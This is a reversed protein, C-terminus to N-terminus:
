NKEYITFTLVKTNGAQDSVTLIFTNTNNGGNLAKLLGPEMFPTIDVHINTQGFVNNKVPFGLGIIKEEYEGPNVLSFKNTLGVSTLTVPTLGDESQIEVIVDSIKNPVNIDVTYGGKGLLESGTVRIGDYLTGGFTIPDTPKDPNDPNDPNDPDDPNPIEPLTGPTEEGDNIVDENGPDVSGDLNEETYSVEIAVHTPAVSGSPQPLKGGLEYTIIRHQGQEVGDYARVVEEHKGNVTGSFTAVLTTSGNVAFYGAGSNANYVLEGEDNAVVTVRVDNGMVERLKPGFVISVKLSSFVCKIPNLETINGATITFQDSTGTFYPKDWEAKKVEHSRVKVIYNGEPLTVAGPMDKYVYSTYPTEAGDKYFDLLFDNIPYSARSGGDKVVNEANNIVVDANNVVVGPKNVSGMAGDETNANKFPEDGTCSALSLAITLLAAQYKFKM